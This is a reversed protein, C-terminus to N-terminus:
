LVSASAVEHQVSSARNKKIKKKVKSRNLTNACEELSCDNPRQLLTYISQDEGAGVYLKLLATDM